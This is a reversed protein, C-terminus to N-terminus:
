SIAQSTVVLFLTWPLAVAIISWATAPYYQFSFGFNPPFSFLDTIYRFFQAQLPLNLGFLDTLRNILAQRSAPDLNGIDKSAQALYVEAFNGPMARPLFFNILLLILFVVLTNALRRVLYGRTYRYRLSTFRNLLRGTLSM